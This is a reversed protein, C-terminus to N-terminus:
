NFLGTPSLLYCNHVNFSVIVRHMYKSKHPLEEGSNRGAILFNIEQEEEAEEESGPEDNEEDECGEIDEIAM